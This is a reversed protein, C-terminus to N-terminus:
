CCCINLTACLKGYAVKSCIKSDALQDNVIGSLICSLTIKNIDNLVCDEINVLPLANMM